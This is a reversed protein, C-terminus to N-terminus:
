PTVVQLTRELEIRAAISATAARAVLSCLEAAFVQGVDPPCNVGLGQLSIRLQDSGTREVALGGGLDRRGPGALALGALSAPLLAAPGALEALDISATVEQNGQRAVILADGLDVVLASDGAILGVSQPMVVVAGHPDLADRPPLSEGTPCWHAGAPTKRGTVTALRDSLALLESVPALLAVDGALALLGASVATRLGASVGADGGIATIQQLQHEPVMGSVNKLPPSL